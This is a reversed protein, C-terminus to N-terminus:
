RRTIVTTTTARLHQQPVAAENEEHQRASVPASIALSSDTAGIGSGISGNGTTKATGSVGDTLAIEDPRRDTAVDAVLVPFVVPTTPAPLLSYRECHEAYKRQVYSRINDAFVVNDFREAHRRIAVSDIPMRELRDLADALSDATPEHFFVGTKNEVVTELAGGARYAVVPRGSAMAELPAIGFDEEGPFLFARCHSLLETVQKDPARKLFEVTPGAMAMLRPMAPGVGVVKLPIGRKTCAEVALDIKKYGVLRSVVLLYDGVPGEAIRFRSTNVPPCIIESPQRYFKLIRNAVNKSNAIFHDVRQASVYDWTRLSHIVFPLLHRTWRSYGGQSIYEHYRWAFRSPTHCYCIHCTQPGTIVGKAFSSSSSIVVDYDSLDLQEFAMPYLPLYFKHWSAGGPLRQLFTTRVDMDRFSPLTADADYISTYVPANPFVQHLVEVVREAGGAQALFDHVIAVRM